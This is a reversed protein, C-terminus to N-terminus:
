IARCSCNPWAIMVAESTNERQAEILLFAEVARPLGCPGEQPVHLGHVDVLRLTLLEELVAIIM